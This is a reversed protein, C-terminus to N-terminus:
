KRLYKQLPYLGYANLILEQKGERNEVQSLYGLVIVGSDEKFSIPFIGPIYCRLGQFEFPMDESDLIILRNQTKVNVDSNIHAVEAEILFPNERDTGYMDYLKEIDELPYVSIGCNYIYEDFMAIDFKGDPIELKTAKTANLNWYGDNNNGTARFVYPTFFKFEVQQALDGRFRFKTFLYNTQHLPSVLGYLVRYWDHDGDRYPQLYNPNEKFNVQERKDIPIGDPTVINDEIAKKRTTPNAYLAKAKDKQIQVWDILRTCGFFIGTYPMAPSWYMRGERKLEGRLRRIAIRWATKPHRDKEENYFQQLKDLLTDKSIGLRNAYEIVKDAIETAMENPIKSM